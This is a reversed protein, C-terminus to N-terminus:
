SHMTQVSIDCEARPQRAHLYPIQKEAPWAQLRCGMAKLVVEMHHTKFEAHHEESSWLPQDLYWPCPGLLIHGYIDCACKLLMWTDLADM